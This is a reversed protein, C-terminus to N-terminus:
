SRSALSSASKITRAPLADALARADQLHLTACDLLTAPRYTMALDHAHALQQGRSTLSGTVWRLGLLVLACDSALAKRQALRLKELAGVRALRGDFDHALERWSPM